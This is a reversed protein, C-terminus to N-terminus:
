KYANKTNEDTSTILRKISEQSHMKTSSTPNSSKNKLEMKRSIINHIHRSKFAIRM